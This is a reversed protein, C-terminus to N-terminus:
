WLGAERTVNFNQLVYPLALLSEDILRDVKRYLVARRPAGHIRKAAVFPRSGEHSPKTSVKSTPYLMM